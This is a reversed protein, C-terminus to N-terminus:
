AICYPNLSYLMRICTPGCDEEHKIKQRDLSHMQIPKHWFQHIVLMLRNYLVVSLMFCESVLKWVTRCFFPSTSDLSSNCRNKYIVYEPAIDPIIFIQSHSMLSMAIRIRRLKSATHQYHLLYESWHQIILFSWILNTICCKPFSKLHVLTILLSLTNIMQFLRYCMHYAVNDFAQVSLIKCWIKTCNM